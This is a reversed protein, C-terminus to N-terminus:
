WADRLERIFAESSLEGTADPARGRLDDWDPLDRDVPIVDIGTVAIQHPFPAAVRYKWTGFVEVRRGVAAVADDYLNAPFHCTVKKPGIEPYIHFTNAGHHINIQDLHGELFGACEDEVALAEEVRQALRPTLDVVTGNFILTATKVSKGVPAAIGRIDELLEADIGTLSEGTVLATAVVALRDVIRNGTDRQPQIPRAKLAVRVPSAYSLADIEFVSGTKGDNTERDIKHLAGSFKQLQTMFTNLRM